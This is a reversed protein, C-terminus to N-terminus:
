RDIDGVLGKYDLSECYHLSPSKICAGDRCTGSYAMIKAVWM